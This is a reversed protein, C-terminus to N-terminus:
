SCCDVKGIQWNLIEKEFEEDSITDGKAMDELGRDIKKNFYIEREIDDLTCDDPLEEIIALIQEKPTM